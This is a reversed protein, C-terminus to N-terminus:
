NGAGGANPYDRLMEARINADPDSGLVRGDPAVVTATSVTAAQVHQAHPKALAPSGIVAAVGVASLIMKLSSNMDFRM